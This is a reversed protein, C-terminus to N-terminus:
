NRPHKIPDTRPPQVDKRKHPSSAQDDRGFKDGGVGQEPLSEFINASMEQKTEVGPTGIGHGGMDHSSSSAGDTTHSYFDAGPWVVDEVVPPNNAVANAPESAGLDRAYSEFLSDLDVDKTDMTQAVESVASALKDNANVEAGGISKTSSAVNDEARKSLLAREDGIGYPDAVKSDGQSEADSSDSAQSRNESLAKDDFMSVEEEIGARQSTASAAPDTADLGGASNTAGDGKVANGLSVVVVTKDDKGRREHAMKVLVQAAQAPPDTGGERLIRGVTRVADADSVNDWIGDTGLIVFADRDLDLARVTIDPVPSVIETPVKFTLDGFSRSFSLGGVVKARAGQLLVRSRGKVKAVSGGAKEIRHRESALDPKHDESLRVATGDTRGLVARSDGLNAILICLKCAEDPGYLLAACATTGSSAWTQKSGGSLKSVYQRFNHETARFGTLLASRLSMEVGADRKKQDRLSDFINRDLQNSVFESCSAGAHGDFVAAFACSVARQWSGVTDMELRRRHVHKDETMVKGKGVEEYAGITLEDSLLERIRAILARAVKRKAENKAIKAADAATAAATAELRAVGECRVKRASPKEDPRTNPSLEYSVLAGPALVAYSHGNEGGEIEKKHVFVEESRIPIFAPGSTRNPAIRGYGKEKNFWLLRGELRKPGSFMFSLVSKLNGMQPKNKAPNSANAASEQEFRLDEIAPAGIESALKSMRELQRHRFYYICGDSKRVEEKENGEFNVTYRDEKPWARAVVGVGSGVSGGSYRVRDGVEFDIKPKEPAEKSSTPASGKPVGREVKPDKGGVAKTGAESAPQSEQVPDRGVKLAKGSGERGSTDKVAGNKGGKDSAPRNGKAPEREDEKAPKREDEKAPKREVKSDNVIGAKAAAQLGALRRRQLEKRSFYHIKGDPRRVEENGHEESRVTYRDEKPFAQAIVGPGEGIGTGLGGIFVVPDGVGLVM